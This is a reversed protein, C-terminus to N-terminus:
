PDGYAVQPFELGKSGCYLEDFQEVTFNQVPTTSNAMTNGRKRMGSCVECYNKWKQAVTSYESTWDAESMADKAADLHTKPPLTDECSDCIPTAQGHEFLIM